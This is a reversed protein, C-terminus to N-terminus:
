CPSFAAGSSGGPWRISAAAQMGACGRRKSTRARHCLDVRRERARRRAGASHGRVARVTGRHHRHAADAARPLLRRRRFRRAHGGAAMALGAVRTRARDVEGIADPTSPVFHRWALAIGAVVLLAIAGIAVRAQVSRRARKRPLMDAILVEPDLPEAPDVVDHSPLVSDLTPDLAPELADLHRVRLNTLSAIADRLSANATAALVAAPAVGLHEGMLRARVGAIFARLRPDGAAEIALNCETDYSMSRDSLNASGVTLLEDDVVLVKSHVNICMPKAEDCSHRPCFLAYRNATDAARLKAHVRARLVGM